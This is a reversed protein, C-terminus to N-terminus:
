DERADGRELHERAFDSLSEWGLEDGLREVAEGFGADSDVRRSEGSRVLRRNEADPDTEFLEDSGEDYHWAGGGEVTGVYKPGDPESDGPDGEVPWDEYRRNAATADDAHEDTREDSM